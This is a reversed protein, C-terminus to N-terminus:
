IMIVLIVATILLVKIINCKEDYKKVTNVNSICTIMRVMLGM